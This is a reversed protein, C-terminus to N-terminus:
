VLLIRVVRKHAWPNYGALSRQTHSKGSLFVSHTETEKELPDEQGLPKVWTEQMPLCIKIKVVSGAPFDFLTTALMSFGLSPPAQHAAM